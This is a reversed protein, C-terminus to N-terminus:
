KLSRLKAYQAVLVKPNPLSDFQITLRASDGKGTVSEIKGNGFHSHVVRQGASYGGKANQSKKSKPVPPVEEAGFSDRHESIRVEIFEDPIESLFRSPERVKRQGFVTRHYACSLSLRKKARTM